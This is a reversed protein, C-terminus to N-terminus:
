SDDYDGYPVNKLIANFHLGSKIEVEQNPQIQESKQGLILFLDYQSPDYGPLALIQQGTLRDQKVKFEQKNVFIVKEHEVMKSAEM